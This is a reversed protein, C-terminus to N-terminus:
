IYVSYYAGQKDLLEEHRGRELIDIAKGILHPASVALLIQVIVLTIVLLLRSGSPKLNSCACRKKLIM